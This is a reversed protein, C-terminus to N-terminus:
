FDDEGDYGDEGDDDVGGDLGDEGDDDVGGDFGDDDFGDDDDSSGDDGSAGLGDDDDSSDDDSSDDDGSSDDESSTAYTRGRPSFYDLEEQDVPRDEAPVPSGWAKKSGIVRFSSEEDFPGANDSVNVCAEPYKEAYDSSVMWRRITSPLRFNVPLDFTARCARTERQRRVKLSKDFGHLVEILQRSRWPVFLPRLVVRTEGNPMTETTTEDPSHVAIQVAFEVDARLDLCREVSITSKNEQTRALTSGDAYRVTSLVCSAQTRGTRKTRRSAHLKSRAKERAIQQRGKSTQRLKHEKVWNTFSKGLYTILEERTMAAPVGYDKRYRLLVDYVPRLQVQNSEDMYTKAWNIRLLMIERDERGDKGRVTRRPWSSASTPWEYEYPKKKGGGMKAEVMTRFSRRLRSYLHKKKGPPATPGRLASFSASDPVNVSSPGSISAEQQNLITQMTRHLRFNEQRMTAMERRMAALANASSVQPHDTLGFPNQREATDQSPM